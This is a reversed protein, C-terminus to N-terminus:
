TKRRKAMFEGVSGSQASARTLQSHSDHDVDTSTLDRPVDETGANAASAATVGAIIAASITDSMSDIKAISSSQDRGAEKRKRYLEIVKSRQAKTLNSFENKPYIKGEVKKGDVTASLMPGLPTSNSRNNGSRNNRRNTVNRTSSGHTSVGRINQVRTNLQQKRENKLEVEASLFTVFSHFDGQAMKNTRATTLAHELGAEAKIGNKIHQIKTAPDMGMGNNYDAEYLLRHCEMHISVYKEFTFRKTDGRYFTSNLKQFATSINRERYDEGEYYNKLAKFAKRGNFTDCFDSIHNYAPTNLLLKKLLLLVRKNDEKFHPGFHTAHTRIFEIDHVDIENNAVLSSRASTIERPSEDVVYDLPINRVGKTTALKLMLKDKFSRWNTSGDLKPVKIDLEDEDDEVILSDAYKRSLEDATRIDISGIDPVQHFTNVAQDFHYLIGLLRNILIPNYYIPTTAHSGFTKNLANLHTKFAGTNYTYNKVLSEMSTFGDIRFRAAENQQCAITTLMSDLRNSNRYRNIIAAM